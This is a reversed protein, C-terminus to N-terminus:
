VRREKSFLKVKIAGGPCHAWCEMCKTCNASENHSASKIDIGEPCVDKCVGCSKGHNVQCENGIVKPKIFFNLRSLLGVLAGVPCFSYCWRKLLTFEAILILPFVILGWSLKFVGFLHLVSFIFGFFLGIPCILCFVPFSFIFTTVAATALIIIAGLGRKGKPENKRHNDAGSKGILVTSCFWACFIKGFIAIVALTGLFALFGKLTVGRDALVTQLFGLPCIFSVGFISLSCYSGAFYSVFYGAVLLCLFILAVLFRVSKINKRLVNM